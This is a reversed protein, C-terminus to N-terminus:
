AHTKLLTTVAGIIMQVGIAALILGMLRTIVGMGQRGLYKVLRGGNVFFFYTMLCIVFFTVITVILHPVGGSAFSIETAITGPGALLPMALPSTAKDMEGDMGKTGDSSHSDQVTSSRGQVMNFGILLVILGGTMTFAPMGIGFLKFIEHGAICFVVVIGFALVVARRAVARRVGADDGGTLGLFIPTNTIPNMIAFFGMFVTLIHTLLNDMM